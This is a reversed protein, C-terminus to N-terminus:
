CNLTSWNFGGSAKGERRQLITSPWTYRIIEESINRRHSHMDM